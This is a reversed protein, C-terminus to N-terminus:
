KQSPREQKEKESSITDQYKLHKAYHFPSLYVRDDEMIMGHDKVLEDLPKTMKNFNIQKLTKKSRTSQLWSYYEKAYLPIEELPLGMEFPEKMEVYEPNPVEDYCKCYQILFDPISVYASNEPVDQMKFQEALELLKEQGERGVCSVGFNVCGMHYSFKLIDEGTLQDYVKQNEESLNDKIIEVWCEGENLHDSVMFTYINKSWLELCAPICEEIIYKRPNQEVIEQPCTREEEFEENEPLFGKKIIEEKRAEQEEENLERFGLQELEEETIEDFQFLDDNKM